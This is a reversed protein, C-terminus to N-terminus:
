DIKQFHYYERKGSGRADGHEIQVFKTKFATIMANTHAINNPRNELKQTEHVVVGGPALISHYGNVIEQEKLGGFDRLQISVALSLLVDYQQTNSKLFENFTQKIWTVNVPKDETLEVHPEVGTVSAVM